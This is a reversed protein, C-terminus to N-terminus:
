VCLNPPEPVLEEVSPLGQINRGTAQRGLDSPKGHVALRRIPLDLASSPVPGRVCGIPFRCPVLDGRAHLFEHFAVCDPQRLHTATNGFCPRAGIILSVHRIRDKVLSGVSTRFYFAILIFIAM